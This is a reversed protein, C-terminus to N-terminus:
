VFELLQIEKIWLKLCLALKYTSRGWDRKLFRVALSSQSSTFLQVCMQDKNLLQLDYYGSKPIIPINWHFSKKSCKINSLHSCWGSINIKPFAKVLRSTNEWRGKERQLNGCNLLIRIKPFWDTFGKLRPNQRSLDPSPFDSVITTLQLFLFFQFSNAFLWDILVIYTLLTLPTQFTCFTPLVLGKNRM